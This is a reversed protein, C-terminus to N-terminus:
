LVGVIRVVAAPNPALLDARLTGRLESADQNFLRSRDLEISTDARRVLVIQGPDFVYISSATTATGQTETVSLQGTVYVPVGLINAATAQAGDGLLPRSTTDKLKRVTNWTRPAMIIAGARANVAELLAIADSFTDLSTVAGGNAGMSTTQIGAINKLGRIEPATGSGEFAALDLKLGLVTAIHATLVDIIAPDSDDVVENSVQALAALKRPTATLTAFAPDTPTIAQLEQYWGPTMDAVLKPWQVTDRGTTVVRIGARLAVSAPRLRDFLFNSLEPPAIAAASTTTLSRSEGKAVSRVADLVRQEITPETDPRAARDEVQLGGGGEHRDETNMSTGEEPTTTPEPRTRLEVRPGDYAPITALSVDHLEGIRTLTRREGDWREGGPAVSFRFSAGSLDGRRVMDRVDQATPGDGLDAEFALGREEDRLRLTGSRTRALVRDPSHNFTLLVDPNSALVDAFAGPEIREVFGGLDRSEVGYLAAHGRLTRGDAQVDPVDVTVTRQESVPPHDPTTNVTM